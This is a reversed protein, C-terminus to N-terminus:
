EENKQAEKLFISGPMSIENAPSIIRRVDGGEDGPAL